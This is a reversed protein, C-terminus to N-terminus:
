PTYSLHGQSSSIRQRVAEYLAVAAAVSANLSSIDGFMPISVLMDCRESVLRSLGKGESGIVLALPMRMDIQYINREAEPMLGVIWIGEEKLRELTMAINSVRAVPIHDAAGSSIKVVTPTLSAARRKPIVVGHVGVAEATRIIAGLNHPD